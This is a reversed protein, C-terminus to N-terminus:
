IAAQRLLRRFCDISRSAATEPDPLPLVEASLWGDYGIDRLAEIVATFDLHGFGPAWRNSDALQAYFVRAGARRISGEMSPEEINMHFTDLMLGINPRGMHELMVLADDITNAFTSVYRNVPELALRVGDAAAYDALQVLEHLALRRADELRASDPRGVMLGISVLAGTERAVDIASRMTASARRRVDIDAASLSIGERIASAGTMLASLRLGSDRLLRQLKDVDIQDIPGNLEVGDFGLAAARAIGHAPDGSYIIPPIAREGWSVTVATKMGM